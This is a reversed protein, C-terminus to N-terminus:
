GEAALAGNAAEVREEDDRVLRRKHSLHSVSRSSALFALATQVWLVSLFEQATDLSHQETSPGPSPLVSLKRGLAWDWRPVSETNGQRSPTRVENGHSLTTKMEAGRQFELLSYILWYFTFSTRQQLDHGCCTLSATLCSRGWQWPLSLM